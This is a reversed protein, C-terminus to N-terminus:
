WRTRSLRYWLRSLPCNLLNFGQRLNKNLKIANDLFYISEGIIYDTKPIRKALKSEWKFYQITLFFIRLFVNDDKLGLWRLNTPDLDLELFVKEIDEHIKVTTPCVFFLHYFTEDDFPGLSKGVVNCITCWRSTEVFHSVRTNLGLRNHFFKFIFERLTNLLCSLGWFSLSSSFIDIRDIVTQSVM